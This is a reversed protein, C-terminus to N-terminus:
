RWISHGATLTPKTRLDASRIPGGWWSGFGVSGDRALSCMNGPAVAKTM